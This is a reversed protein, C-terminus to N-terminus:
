QKRDNEKGGLDSRLGKLENGILEVTELLRDRVKDEKKQERRFLALSTLLAFAGVFILARALDEYFPSVRDVAWVLMAFGASVFTMAVTIAIASMNEKIGGVIRLLATKFKSM